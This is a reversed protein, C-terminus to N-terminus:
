SIGVRKLVSILTPMFRGYIGRMKPRAIKYATVILAGQVIAVLLGVSVACAPGFPKIVNAVAIVNLRGVMELYLLGSIFTIPYWLTLGVLTLLVRDLLRVTLSGHRIFMQSLWRPREDMLAFLSMEAILAFFCLDVGVVGTGRNLTESNIPVGVLPAVAIVHEVVRVVCYACGLIKIIIWVDTKWRASRTTTPKEM